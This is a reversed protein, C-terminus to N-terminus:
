ILGRFASRLEDWARDSLDREQVTGLAALTTGSRSSTGAHLAPLGRPAGRVLPAARTRAGDELYDTVMEVIQACPIDIGSM